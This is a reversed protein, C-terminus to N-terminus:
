GRRPCAAAGQPPLVLQQPVGVRAPDLVLPTLVRQIGQVHHAGARFRQQGGRYGSCLENEWLRGKQCEKQPVCCGVGSHRGPSDM